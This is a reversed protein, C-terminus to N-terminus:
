QVDPSPPPSYTGGDNAITPSTPQPPKPKAQQQLKLLEDHEKEKRERVEKVAKHFDDENMQRHAGEMIDNHMANLQRERQGLTPNEGVHNIPLMALVADPISVPGLRIFQKDVGWKEGNRGHFTWDGPQRGGDVVALSDNNAKMTAALASDLQQSTTKPATVVPASGVWVRPDNFQPRIGETPGGTGVVPGTGGGDTPAQPKVPAAPLGTPVSSPAVLPAPRKTKPTVPRDNGGNKGANEETSPKPLALFGIREVPPAPRHTQTLWNSHPHPALLLELIGAGILVHLVVSFVLAGSARRPTRPPVPPLLEPKKPREAM